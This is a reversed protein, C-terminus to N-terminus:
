DTPSNRLAAFLLTAAARRHPDEASQFLDRNISEGEPSPWDLQAITSPLVAQAQQPPHPLYERLGDSGRWRDRLADNLRDPFSRAGDPGLVDRAMEWFHVILKPLRTGWINSLWAENEMRKVVNNGVLADVVACAEAFRYDARGRQFSVNVTEDDVERSQFPQDAKADAVTDHRLFHLARIGEWHPHSEAPFSLGRSRSEAEPNREIRRSTPGGIISFRHLTAYSSELTRLALTQNSQLRERGGSIQGPDVQFYEGYLVAKLRVPMAAKEANERVSDLIPAILGGGTGGVISGIVVVTPSGPQPVFKEPRPLQHAVVSSLAPRAFLGKQLPQGLLDASFFADVPRYEGNDRGSSGTLMEEVDDTSPQDFRAFTLSPITEGLADTSEDGHQLDDLLSKMSQLGSHMEDTDVVLARFPEEVIGALYLRFYHFLLTQGTGGVAIITEM